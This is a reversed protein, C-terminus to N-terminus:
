IISKIDLGIDNLEIWNESCLEEENVYQCFKTCLGFIFRKDFIWCSACIRGFCKNVYLPFLVNSDDIM